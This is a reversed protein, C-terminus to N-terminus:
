GHIYFQLLGFVLKNNQFLRVIQCVFVQLYNNKNSLADVISKLRSIYGIHDSGWINILQDYKRTFKDYHYASDNAFYTWDGNIKQLPRDVDDNFKSSKFLLQKRPKWNVNEDGKPKDLYGEYILSKNELLSCVQKIVNEKLIKSEYTFVDFNIRILKLDDKITKTIEQVAYNQFYIKREQSENNLWKNGDNEFIKKAIDIM